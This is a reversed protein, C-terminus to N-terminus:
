VYENILFIVDDIFKDNIINHLTEVKTIYPLPVSVSNFGCENIVDKSSSMTSFNIYDVANPNIKPILEHVIIRLNTEKENFPANFTIYYKNNVKFDSLRVM